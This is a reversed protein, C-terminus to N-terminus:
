LAVEGELPGDLDIPIDRVAERMAALLDGPLGSINRGSAIDREILGLLGNLAPDEHEKAQAPVVVVERGRLVWRVRDGYGVGLANRVTAPVTTQGKATVTSEELVMDSM